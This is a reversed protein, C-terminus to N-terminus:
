TSQSRDLYQTTLFQAREVFDGEVANADWGGYNLHRGDGNFGCLFHGSAMSGNEVTVFFVLRNTPREIAAMVLPYTIVAHGGNRVALPMVDRFAFLAFDRHTEQWFPESDFIDPTSGDMPIENM